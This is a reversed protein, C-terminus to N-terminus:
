PLIVTSSASSDSSASPTSSASKWRDRGERKAGYLAEDARRLLQEITGDAAGAHAIGISCSCNCGDTFEPITIRRCGEVIRRAVDEAARQDTEPLLVAFEEGGLRGVVDSQRSTSRLLDGFQTLVRDGSDHGFTDNVRKFFDLDVILLGLPRSYRLHRGFEITALEFWRRRSCLGTLADTSAVRALEDRAGQLEGIRQALHEQLSLVRLGVQVRASLEGVDFPKVIYDDAGSALGAVVDHRSDRSTVLIAYMRSLAADSRIRRCLEPGAIGPMEWDVIALASDSAGRLADWAANGDHVVDIVLGFQELTKQLIATTGRDDDAILARM